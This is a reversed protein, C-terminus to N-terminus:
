RSAAEQHKLVNAAIAQLGPLIQFVEKLSKKELMSLKEPEIINDIKLGSDKKALQAQMLLNLLFEFASYIDTQLEPLILGKRSLLNLRETTSTEHINSAISLARLADVIHSTGKEKIDFKEQQKGTEDVIFKRFFGVPSGQHADSECLNPGYRAEDRIKKYLMDKLAWVISSDGYIARLDLMKKATAVKSLDGSCLATLINKTWSSLDGYIPVEGGLPHIDFLPMECKKFTDQLHAVLSECFDEMDKKECFTKNENYVIACRFVTKFTEERRGEAGYVFFAFPCHADGIEKISLEIIKQILRDHLETIIRLVHTAKVDEKLLISITQNIRDRVTRLEESDQLRDINKLISLPSTGQLLMFDHNTVIGALDNGETVLLHHINRRLMTSLADFCTSGANVKVLGTSMIEHVPTSSDLGQAVVKDRLDRDTIIGVPSDQGNKIIISSIGQESMIGAAEKIPTEETVTVPAKSIIERVPTTYLLKEGEKFLLNKSRMEKYTKDLYNKFFSKMFYEGFNPNQNIIDLIINKPILYCLTDEVAMINARSKDGSILSLYGFSDGESKFDIVIEDDNSLYVKVGGKKIVRLADSPPGDQTLVLTNKPFFEMSLNGAISRIASDDLFQFPPIGKLFNISDETIM